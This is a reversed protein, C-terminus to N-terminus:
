AANKSKQALLLLFMTHQTQLHPSHFRYYPSSGPSGIPNASTYKSRVMKPALDTSSVRQIYQAWRPGEDEGDGFVEGTIARPHFVFHLYVQGDQTRAVPMQFGERRSQRTEHM